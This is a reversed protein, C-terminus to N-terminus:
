NTWYDLALTCETLPCDTELVKAISPTLTLYSFWTRIPYHDDDSSQSQAYSVSLSPKYPVM